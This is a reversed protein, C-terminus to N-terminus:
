AGLRDIDPARGAAEAVAAVVAAGRPVRFALAHAADEDRQKVIASWAGM